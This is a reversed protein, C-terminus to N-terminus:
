AGALRIEFITGTSATRVTITGGLREVLRAAISLGLGSGVPRSGRYRDRLYGREFARALDAPDIGPGGDAVEIVVAGADTETDAHAGLRIATGAPSVRLANELLGDVVQRLRAADSHVRPLDDAVTLELRINAAGASARWAEAAASLLGGLDVDDLDLRFDDAELRALALLDDTFSTLRMAEAHLTRGVAAVEEAPITGDALAEAYGRLATLPTRIEHSITLLFERQRAESHELARDLVAIADAVEDLERVGTETAPLARDGAALRRATAALRLLPRSLARTALVAAGLAIVIGIGLALLFQATFLRSLSRVRTSEQALLVGGGSDIPVAEVLYSLGGDRVVTSVNDGAGLPLLIRPTVLDSGSGTAAGVDDIVAILVDNSLASLGEVAADRVAPQANALREAQELLDARAVTTDASRSLQLTAVATAVVAAIAVALTALLLRRRLPVGRVRAVGNTPTM